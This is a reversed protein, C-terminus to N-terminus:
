CLMCHTIETVPSASTGIIIYAKNSLAIYPWKWSLMYHVTLVGRRCREGGGNSHKTGRFDGEEKWTM